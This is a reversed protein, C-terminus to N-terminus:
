IKLFVFVIDSIMMFFFFMFRFLYIMVFFSERVKWVSNSIVVFLVCINVMGVLFGVWDIEILIIEIGLIVGVWGFCVWVFCDFGFDILGVGICFIMFVGGVLGFIFGCLGLGWVMFFGMGALCIGDLDIVFGCGFFIFCVVLVVCFGVGVGLWCGFWGVVVLWFMVFWGIKIFLGVKIFM